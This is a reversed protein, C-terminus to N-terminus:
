WLQRYLLPHQRESIKTLLLRGSRISNAGEFHGLRNRNSDDSIGCDSDEDVLILLVEGFVM